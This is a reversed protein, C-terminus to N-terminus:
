QEPLVAKITARTEPTGFIKNYANGNDRGKEVMTRVNDAVGVLYAERDQGKLKKFDRAIQNASKKNEVYETILWEKTYGKSERQRTQWKAKCAITCFYTDTKCPNRYLETGCYACVTHKKKM